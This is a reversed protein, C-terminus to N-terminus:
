GQAKTLLEQAAKSDPQQKLVAKALEVARTINGQQLQGQALAMLFQPDTFRGSVMEMVQVAQQREPEAEAFQLSYYGWAAMLPIDVRKEDLPQPVAQGALFQQILTVAQEDPYAQRQATKLELQSLMADVLAPTSYPNQGTILKGDQVVLPLMPGTQQYLAGAKTLGDQLLFPYLSLMEKAFMTEEQNSFGAVKKGQLLLSGDKNKVHILAAPGHCVAAILKQQQAMDALLQQLPQHEALDFMAGKGGLVLAAQYDNAKIESLKKSGALLQMAAPSALAAANYPKTKNYGGVEVKGGKPSALELQVQPSLLQYAMAYEDFELGPKKPDDAVGYSSAILLVKPKQILEEAQAAGNCVAAGLLSLVALLWLRNKGLTSKM